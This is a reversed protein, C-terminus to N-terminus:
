KSIFSALPRLHVSQECTVKLFVLGPVALLAGTVGWLWGWFVLALFIILPNLQFTRGLILPTLMPAMTIGKCARKAELRHVLTERRDHPLLDVPQDREDFALTM